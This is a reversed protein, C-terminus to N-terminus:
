SFLSCKITEVVDWYSIFILWKKLFLVFSCKSNILFWFCVVSFRTAYIFVDAGYISSVASLDIGPWDFSLVNSTPMATYPIRSAPPWATWTPTTSLSSLQLLIVTREIGCSCNVGIGTTM